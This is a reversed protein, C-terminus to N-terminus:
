LRHIFHSAFTARTKAHSISAALWSRRLLLDLHHECPTGIPFGTAVVGMQFQRVLPGLSLQKKSGLTPPYDGVDGM